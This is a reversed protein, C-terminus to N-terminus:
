KGNAVGEFLKVIMKERETLHEQIVDWWCIKWWKCFRCHWDSDVNMEGNIDFAAKFPREPIERAEVLKILDENQKIIQEFFKKDPWVKYWRRESTNKNYYHLYGYEFEGLILYSQIQAYHELSPRDEYGYYNIRHELKPAGLKCGKCFRANAWLRQGCNTCYWGQNTKWAREKCSKCEIPVDKGNFHILFDISGSILYKKSRIRFQARDPSPLLGAYLLWEGLEQEVADGMRWISRKNMWDENPEEKILIEGFEKEMDEHSMWSFYRSRICQMLASPYHYLTDQPNDPIIIKSLVFDQVAKDQQYKM